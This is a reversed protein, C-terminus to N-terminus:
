NSSTKEEGQREEAISYSWEGLNQTEDKETLSDLWESLRDIMRDIWDSEQVVKDETM